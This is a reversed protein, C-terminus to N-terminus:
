LRKILKDITRSVLKALYHGVFAVGCLYFAVIYALVIYDEIKM